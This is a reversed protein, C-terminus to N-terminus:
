EKGLLLDLAWCGRVHLPHERCHELLTVNQCGAEELADGLIPMDGFRQEDYITQAMVEVRGGDSTLWSEDLRVKREWETGGLVDLFLQGQALREEPWPRGPHHRNAFAYLLDFPVTMLTGPDSGTIHDLANILHSGSFSWERTIRRVNEREERLQGLSSQDEAHKEVVSLIEHPSVDLYRISQDDFLHQVRRCCAASFLRLKRDQNAHPGAWELLAGPTTCFQLWDSITM